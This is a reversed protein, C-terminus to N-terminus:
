SSDEETPLEEAEFVTEEEEEPTDHPQEYVGANQTWDQLIKAVENPDM